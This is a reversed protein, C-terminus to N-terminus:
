AYPKQNMYLRNRTRHNSEDQLRLVVEMDEGITDDDYGGVEILDEKRFLGFAGSILCQTQLKDWIRRAFQFSKMYEFSQIKELMCGNEKTVLLRGGVAAVKEKDFHKVATKLAGDLLVCDADVVAIIEGRAQKIGENLANGKGKEQIFIERVPVNADSTFSQKERIQPFNQEENLGNRLVLIECDEYGQKIVSDITKSINKYGNIAILVSIYIHEKLIVDKRCYSKQLM